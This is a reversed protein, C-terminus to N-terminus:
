AAPVSKRRTLRFDATHGPKGDAVSQWVSRVTGDANFTFVAANMHMGKPDTLNTIDIMAFAVSDKEIRTAKLRPQNGAACYHTCMLDAGNMHYVTVMEHETGAFLTEAVASGAGIVRYEVTGDPAGDGDIDADWTGKLGKFRDLPSAKPSPPEASAPAKVAPASPASSKAGDQVASLMSFSSPLMTALVAVSAAAFTIHM